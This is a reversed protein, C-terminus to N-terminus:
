WNSLSSTTMWKAGCWIYRNCQTSVVPLTGPQDTYINQKMDEINISMARSRPQPTNVIHMYNINDMEKTLRAGQQHQVHTGKTDWGVIPFIEHSNNNNANSVHSIIKSQNSQAMDSENPIRSSCPLLSQEWVFIMPLMFSDIYSAFWKAIRTWM